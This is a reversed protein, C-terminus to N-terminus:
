RSRYQGNVYQDSSSQEIPRPCRGNRLRETPGELDNPTKGIPRRSPVCCNGPGDRERDSRALIMLFDAGVYSLPLAATEYVAPRCNSDARRSLMQQLFEGARLPIAESLSANVVM